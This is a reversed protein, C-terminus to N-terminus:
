LHECFWSSWRWWFMALLGCSVELVGCPLPVLTEAECVVRLDALASEVGIHLQAAARLPPPLAELLLSGGTWVDRAFWTGEATGVLEVLATLPTRTLSSEPRRVHLLPDYIM